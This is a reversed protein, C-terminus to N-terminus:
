VCSIIPANRMIENIDLPKVPSLKIRRNEPAQKSESFLGKKFEKKECPTIGGLCNKTSPFNSRTAQGRYDITDKCDCVLLIYM